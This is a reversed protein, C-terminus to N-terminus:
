VLRNFGSHGFRGAQMWDDVNITTQAAPGTNSSARLLSTVVNQTQDIALGLREVRGNERRYGMFNNHKSMATQEM